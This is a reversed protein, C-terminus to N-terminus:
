RGKRQDTAPAERLVASVSLSRVWRNRYWLAKGDKIALGHVMGDGLFWHYGDPDPNIPNPGIRVYRGDLELPIEGVVELATITLEQNMPEHLGILFANQQAPQQLPTMGRKAQDAPSGDSLGGAEKQPNQVSMMVEM